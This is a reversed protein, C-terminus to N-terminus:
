LQIESHNQLLSLLEKKAIPRTSTVGIRQHLRYAAKAGYVKVPFYKAGNAILWITRTVGDTLGVSQPKESARMLPLPVPNKVGGNFVQEMSNFKPDNRWSNISGRSLKSHEGDKFWASEFRYRDVLVIHSDVNDVTLTESMYFQKDEAKIYFVACTQGYINRKELKM